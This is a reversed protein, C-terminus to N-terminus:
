QVEKCAESVSEVKKNRKSTCCFMTNEKFLMELEAVSRGKTQLLVALVFCMVINFAALGFLIYYRPIHKTIIPYLTILSFSTIFLLFTGTGSVIHKINTPILEGLFVFTVPGIGASFMFGLFSITVLPWITLYQNICMAAITSDEEVQNCIQDKFLLYTGMLILSVIICILSISLLKKRGLKDMCIIGTVSGLIQGLPFVLGVLNPDWVSEQLIESNYNAFFNIGTTQQTIVTLAIIFSAKLNWPKILQIFKTLYTTNNERLITDIQQLESESDHDKSRIQKLTRLASDKLHISLLYTPTYPVFLLLFTQLISLATGTFALMSYSLRAGSLYTVFIGLPIGIRAISIHTGRSDKHALESIYVVAIPISVGSGIGNLARSLILVEPIRTCGLMIYGAASVVAGIRLVNKRGLAYMLPMAILGSIAATLYFVGSFVAFQYDDLISTNTRKLEEAIPSPFGFGFGLLLFSVSTTLTCYLVYFSIRYKTSM